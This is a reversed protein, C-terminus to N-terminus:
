SSSIQKIERHDIICRDRVAGYVNIPADLVVTHKVSGGYAVRSSEVKGSIEFEQMYIAKVKLGALDWAAGNGVSYGDMSANMFGDM